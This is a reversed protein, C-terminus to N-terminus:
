DLVVGAETVASKFLSSQSRIFKAAEAPETGVPVVQLAALRTRIEPLALVANVETALKNVIAAPTGAPAALVYWINFDFSRLGADALSPIEPAFESRMPQTVTLARIKGNRVFPLGTFLGDLMADVQGGVLAHVAEVGKYPIHNLKIGLEKQLLESILHVSTGMGYSSYSIQGPKKRALEVFEALNKVPLSPHVGLMIPTYAVYSVPVLDRAPDFPSKRFLHPVISYTTNTSLLLTYGDAPASIVAKAGILTSAGPKAEVIIPQGLRQGLKDTLVRALIDTGGGASYPIILKIPKSPYTQAGVPFQILLALLVSFIGLLSTKLLRTPRGIEQSSFVYKKRCMFKFM